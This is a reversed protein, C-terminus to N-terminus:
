PNWNFYRSITKLTNRVAEEPKKPSCSLAFVGKRGDHELVLVPHGSGPRYRMHVGPAMARIGREIQRLHKLRSMADCVVGHLHPDM